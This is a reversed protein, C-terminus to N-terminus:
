MSLQNDLEQQLTEFASLLAAILAKFALSCKFVVIYISNFSNDICKNENEKLSTLKKEDMELSNSEILIMYIQSTFLILAILITMYKMQNKVLIIVKQM